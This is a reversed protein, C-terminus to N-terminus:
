IKYKARAHNLASSDINTFKRLLKFYQNVFAKDHDDYGLAHTLEHILVVINRQNRALTISDNSLYYSYLLGNYKVGRGARINPLPYYDRGSTSFLDRWIKTAIRRLKAMPISRSLSHGRFYQAEFLYVRRTDWGSSTM